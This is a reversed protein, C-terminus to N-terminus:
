IIDRQLMTIKWQSNQLRRRRRTEDDAYCFCRHISDTDFKFVFQSWLSKKPQQGLVTSCHSRSMAALPGTLRINILRHTWLRYDNQVKAACSKMGESHGNFGPVLHILEIPDGLFLLLEVFDDAIGNATIIIATKTTFTVNTLALAKDSRDSAMEVTFSSCTHGELPFLEVPTTIRARKM